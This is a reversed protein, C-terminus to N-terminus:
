ARRQQRPLRLALEDRIDDSPQGAGRCFTTPAPEAPFSARQLASLDRITTEAAPQPTM